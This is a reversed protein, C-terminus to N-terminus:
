KNGRSAQELGAGVSLGACVVSVFVLLTILEGGQTKSMQKETLMNFRKM